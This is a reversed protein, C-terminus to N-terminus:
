LGVHRPDGSTIIAADLNDKVCRVAGFIWGCCNVILPANVESLREVSSIALRHEGYSLCAIVDCVNALDAINSDETTWAREILRGAIEEVEELYGDAGIAQGVDRVRVGSGLGRTSLCDM